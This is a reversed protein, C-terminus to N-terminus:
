EVGLFGGVEGVQVSLLEFGCVQLGLLLTTIHTLHRGPIEVASHHAGEGLCAVAPHGELVGGVGLAILRALGVPHHM